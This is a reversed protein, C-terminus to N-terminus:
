RCTWRGRTCKWRRATARSSRRRRAHAAGVRRDAHRRRHLHDLRRDARRRGQRAEARSLRRHLGRRGVALAPQHRPDDAAGARAPRAVDAVVGVPYGRPLMNFYGRRAFVDIAYVNVFGGNNNRVDVVVGQQAHNDADLDLHLQSLAGASMDFMHVYGLRGGSAKAVYERRQEVWQATACRRRPRSISRSSSWRARARRRRRRWRCRSRAQRDHSRAARRPQRARRDARGDVQLIYDGPKIGRSRRRASRCSRRSACGATRSRVGRSRFRGGAPRADDADAQPPASIGMHSANLEGLMLSM